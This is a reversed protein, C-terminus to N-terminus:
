GEPAPKLGEKRLRALIFADVPNRTASNPVAPRVPTKFAWHTAPDPPDAAPLPAAVLSVLVALPLTYRLMPPSPPSRRPTLGVHTPTRSGRRGSPEVSASPPEQEPPRTRGCYGPGPASNPTM